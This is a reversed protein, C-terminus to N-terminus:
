RAFALTRPPNTMPPGPIDRLAAGSQPGRAPDAGTVMAECGFRVDISDRQACRLLMRAGNRGFPPARSTCPEGSSACVPVRNHSGARPSASSGTAESIIACRISGRECGFGVTEVRELSSRARMM